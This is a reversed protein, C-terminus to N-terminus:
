GKEIKKESQLKEWKVKEWKAINRNVKNHCIQDLNIAMSHAVLEICIRVDAVEDELKCVDAYKLVSMDGRMFKKMINSLEGVEGCLELVTYMAELPPKSKNSEVKEFMEKHHKIADEKWNPEYM